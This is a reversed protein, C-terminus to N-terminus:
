TLAQVKEDHMQDRLYYTAIGLSALLVSGSVIGTSIVARIPMHEYWWLIFIMIFFVLLPIIKSYLIARTVDDM